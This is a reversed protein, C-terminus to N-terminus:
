YGFPHRSDTDQRAHLYDPADTYNGGDTEPNQLRDKETFKNRAFDGAAQVLTAIATARLTQSLGPRRVGMGDFQEQFRYTAGEVLDALATNIREKPTPRPQFLYGLLIGLGAAVGTAALPYDAVYAKWNFTRQMRSSLEDVTETISERTAAINQRIEDSSREHASGSAPAKDGSIYPSQTTTLYDREAM